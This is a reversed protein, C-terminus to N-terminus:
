FSYVERDILEHVSGVDTLDTCESDVEKSWETLESSGYKSREAAQLSWQNVSSIGIHVYMARELNTLIELANAISPRKKRRMHTCAHALEWLQELAKENSDPTTAPAKMQRLLEKIGGASLPMAEGTDEIVSLLHGRETVAAMGTLMVLVVIGFSYVDSASSVYGTNVYEPDIYGPTGFVRMTLHPLGDAFSKAVGFDALKARKTCSHVIINRVTVDGHVIPPGQAHLEFLADAVDRMVSVKQDLTLTPIAEALTGGLELEYILCRHDDESCVGLLTVLNPHRVRSLLTVENVFQENSERAELALRRM